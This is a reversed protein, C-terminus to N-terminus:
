FWEDTAIFNNQNNENYSEAFERNDQYLEIVSLCSRCYRLTGHQNFKTNITACLQCVVHDNYFNRLHDYVVDKELLLKNFTLEKRADSWQIKEAYLKDLYKAFLSPKINYERGLVHLNKFYTIKRSRSWSIDMLERFGDLFDFRADQHYEM